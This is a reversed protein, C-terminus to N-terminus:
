LVRAEGKGQIEGRRAEKRKGARRSRQLQLWLSRAVSPASRLWLDRVRRLSAAASPLLCLLGLPGLAEGFRTRRLGGRDTRTRCRRRSPPPRRGPSNQVEARWGEERKLAVTCSLRWRGIRKRQRTLNNKPKSRSKTHYSCLFICTCIAWNM